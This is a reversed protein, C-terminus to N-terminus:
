PQRYSPRCGHVASEADRRANMAAALDPQIPAPPQINIQPTNAQPTNAQPATGQLVNDRPANPPQIAVLAPQLASADVAAFRLSGRGRQDFSAAWVFGAGGIIRYIPVGEQASRTFDSIFDILLGKRPSRGQALTRVSDDDLPELEVKGWVALVADSTGSRRPM